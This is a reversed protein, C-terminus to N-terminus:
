MIDLGKKLEDVSWEIVSQGLEKSIVWDPHNDAIGDKSFDKLHNTRFPREIRTKPHEKSPISTLTKDIVLMMSIEVNGAHADVPGRILQEIKEELAPSNMEIYTLRAGGFAQANDKVFQQVIKVNGGHATVFVFHEAYPQLSTCIDRLVSEMTSLSIWVTGPFGEHEESCTIRLTPLFVIETFETELRKIVEDQIYSDTGLPLFPGHQETAGMPIVFIRKKKADFDTTKMRELFM